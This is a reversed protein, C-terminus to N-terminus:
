YRLNQIHTKTLEHLKQPSFYVLIWTSGTLIANDNNCQINWFIIEFLNQFYSQYCGSTAFRGRNEPRGHQDQFKALQWLQYRPPLWDSWNPGTAQSNTSTSEPAQCATLASGPAQCRITSVFSDLNIIMSRTFHTSAPGLAHYPLINIRCSTVSHFNIRSSALSMRWSVFFDTLCM